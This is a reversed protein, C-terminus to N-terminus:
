LLVLWYYEFKGAVLNQIRIRTQHQLFYMCGKRSQHLGCASGQPWARVLLRGFMEQLPLSVYNNRTKQYLVCTQEHYYGKLKCNNPCNCRITVQPLGKNSTEANEGGPPVPEQMSDDRRARTPITPTYGIQNELLLSRQM